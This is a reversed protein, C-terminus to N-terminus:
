EQEQPSHPVSVKVYGSFGAPLTFEKINWLDSTYITTASGTNIMQRVADEIAKDTFAVPEVVGGVTYGFM